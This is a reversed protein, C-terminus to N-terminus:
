HTEPAESIVTLGPIDAFDRRNHAHETALYIAINTDLSISTSV